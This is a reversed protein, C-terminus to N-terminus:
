PTLIEDPVKTKKKRTFYDKYRNLLETLNNFEITYFVGVGQTYESNVNNILSNNNSRNFAKLRIRGDKSAKVEVNFDGVLNSSNQTSTGNSGSVSTSADVLVRDKLLSTSVKVDLEEPTLNSEQSYNLEVNFQNSIQSAWNSLQNSLMEYANAGVASGSNTPARNSLETPTSFKRLVLLSVAQRYKEEDTNILSKIQTDVTPDVNKVDINFGISPNFLKDTLNLELEVPVSKRYTSDLFLDYLSTNLKYIADIKVDANYPDGNWRIYGGKDITFPKNIINQMTFLYKGRDIEFSGLMRFDESPSVSMTLNGHGNGEIVDGIKSDFILYINADNTVDFDMNLEIGSFDPGEEKAVHTTTDSKDIYTIFSSRSVEEPNSLPISLKTGAETQLGINMIIYELYGSIRVNGSAYATGYFMENDAPGTNLVQTKKAKIDIDFYFDKLHDHYVKGNIIAQNGKVDNMIVNNFAFSNNNLEVDTSFNYTTKLYDVIFSVKQLTIKGTLLPKNVPGDLKIHGSAIGGLNSFIGELYHNFSSLYTKQLTIDFNIEDEKDKKMLYEGTVHINKVGGRTVMADVSVSGRRSNWETQLTADGITDAFWRLNDVQLESTLTPKGLIGSLRASGNIKGGVEVDYIDLFDNFQAAEFDKFGLNMVSATDKALIGNLNLQQIGGTLNFNEFLVGSSDILVLNKPDITWQQGKQMLEIPIIRISTYGTKLFGTDFQVVAKSKTSDKGSLSLIFSASDSRTKGMLRINDFYLSDSIQLHGVTTNFILENNKTNGSLYINKFEAPSIDIQDSSLLLSIKNDLSSLQGEILTGNAIKISPFFVDALPQTRKTTVKFTLDQSPPLKKQNNVIAPFYKSLILKSSNVLDKISFYGTVQADVIDSQLVISRKIDRHAQIFIRDSKIEKGAEQYNADDIQITGEANDIDNGVLNISIEAVMNASTDRDLLNLKTLHAQYISSTFNYVPLKNRLDIDGAFNLDLNPDNITLEGNFLKKAFHGNLHIGSYNYGRFQLKSANGELNAQLNEMKFGQGKLNAKASVRGLDPQLKFFKGLDFDFLSLNGSYNTHKDDEAIKLNIDSSIYGLSTTTNGYAVFDKYFGNFKGKFQVVGLEELNAPLEIKEHSSFPFAPITEIDKKLLSLQDVGIEMYTEDFNPLGTMNVSGKFKTTPTYVIELNKAKFRDVTGRAEGKFSFSRDLGILESSFFALDHFSIKSEDFKGNWNVKTIFDEFASLDDYNFQISTHIDSEPSVIRMAEFKMLLPEIRAKTSLDKLVFGSKEIFSLSALNFNLTDAEPELDEIKVNLHSLYLDDWDIIPTSDSYKLDRYSFTNDVMRINKVRIKWPKSTTTDKGSGSFYDIIFDLNYARPDKYKKIGIRAKNLTAEAITIRQQKYSFQSFTVILEPAYILTDHQLDEIYLGELSLSRFLKIDVADISVKTKLESSLYNTVRQVVWTQVAPVKIVLRFAM